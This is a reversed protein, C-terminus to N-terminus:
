SKRIDTLQFTQTVGKRLHKQTEMLCKKPVRYDYFYKKKQMFKLLSFFVCGISFRRLISNENKEYISNNFHASQIVNNWTHNTYFFVYM